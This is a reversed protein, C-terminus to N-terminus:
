MKYNASKSAWQYARTSHCQRSLCNRWLAASPLRADKALSMLIHDGNTTFHALHHRLTIAHSNRKGSKSLFLYVWMCCKHILESCVQLLIETIHTKATGWPNADLSILIKGNRHGTVYCSVEVTCVLPRPSLTLGCRGETGPRQCQVHGCGSCEIEQKPPRPGNCLPQCLFHPKSVVPPPHWM